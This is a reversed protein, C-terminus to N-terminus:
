LVPFYFGRTCSCETVLLELSFPMMLAKRWILVTTTPVVLPLFKYVLGLENLEESAGGMNDELVVIAGIRKKGNTSEDIKSERELKKWM